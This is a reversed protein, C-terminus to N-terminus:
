SKLYKQCSKRIINHTRCRSSKEIGSVQLINTSFDALKTYAYFLRVVLQLTAINNHVTSCSQVTNQQGYQECDDVIINM